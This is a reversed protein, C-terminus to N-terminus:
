LVGRTQIGEELFLDLPYRPDGSRGVARRGFAETGPSFFDWFSRDAPRINSSQRADTALNIAACDTLPSM